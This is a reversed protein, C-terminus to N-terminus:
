AAAALRLAAQEDRYERLLQNADYGHAVIRLAYEIFNCFGYAYGPTGDSDSSYKFGDAAHIEAVLYGFWPFANGRSFHTLYAAAFEQGARFAAEYDNTPEVHWFSRGTRSGVKVDRVFPLSLLDRIEKELRLSRRLKSGSRDYPKSRDLRSQKM